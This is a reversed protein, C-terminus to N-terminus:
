DMWLAANYEVERDGPVAVGLAQLLPRAKLMLEAYESDAQSDSVIGGGANFIAVDEHIMMTRIAVNFDMEWGQGGPAGLIIGIAGMSIGRPVREIEALIEMARIKPAGTISGCPFLARLIELVGVEPRLTGRVHSVLHFLHPLPEVEFLQAGITQYQCIRGLDNRLLDVIMTNEARDKGSALLAALRSQDEAANRGRAITGKIPSAVIRRGAIHFFREPSDSIITCAPSRLFARFPARGASLHRFIEECSRGGPRVSFQQTLNAQYIDGAALYDLIKAVARRYGASDFNLQVTELSGASCVRPPFDERPLREILPYYAFSFEPLFEFRALSLSEFASALEYALYGIAGGAPFERAHWALWVPLEALAQLSGELVSV